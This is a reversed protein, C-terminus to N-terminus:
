NKNRHRYVDIVLDALKKKRSVADYIIEDVTGRALLFIYRGTEEKDYSLIRFKAQEFNILSYDASYLIITHAKSMDVAMGSQIQMVIADSAFVGDYPSGGAVVATQYGLRSLYSKVAEIEHLFRCIVIFKQRAPLSRVAEHLKEMKEHGIPHTHRWLPGDPEQVHEIVFGGTIQQLKMVCALVNKVKIKRKNVEAELTEELEDYIGQAKRELDLFAKRYHLILPKKGGERRAERLTIRFSHRHFIENFEDENQYGTISHKQYGGWIIYKSNFGVEIVEDTRKDVTNDFKGFIEPDIFDFQAWADILGQAIPTGTLALRYKAYRAMHRVVRSRSAGRKKMFHAEDAIILCDSRSKIWAYWHKRNNVVQEYNVVTPKPLSLAQLHTKFERRWVPIAVKPCIVLIFKPQIRDATAYSILCKGTRQEPILLFGGGGKLATVAEETARVQYPRLSTLLM